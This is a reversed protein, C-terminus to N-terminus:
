LTQWQNRWHLPLKGQIHHRLVFLVILGIVALVSLGVGVYLANRADAPLDGHFAFAASVSLMLVLVILDIVQAM